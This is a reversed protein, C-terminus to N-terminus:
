CLGGVEKGDILDVILVWGYYTGVVALSLNDKTTWWVLATPHFCRSSPVNAANTAPTSTGDMTAQVAESSGLSGFVRRSASVGNNVMVLNTRSWEKHNPDRDAGSPEFQPCLTQTAAM